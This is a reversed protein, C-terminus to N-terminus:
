FLYYINFDAVFQLGKDSTEIQENRISDSCV